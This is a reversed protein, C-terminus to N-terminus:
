GYMVKKRGRTIEDRRDGIPLDKLTM